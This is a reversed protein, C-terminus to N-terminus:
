SDSQGEMVRPLDRASHVVRLITVTEGRILYVIRYPRHIIERLEERDFEPVKRGSWPFSPLTETAEVLRNTQRVAYAPSDRAIFAEIAELDEIATLTWRLDAM